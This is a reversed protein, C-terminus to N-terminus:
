WFETSTVCLRVANFTGVDAKYRRNQMLTKITFRAGNTNDWADSELRTQFRQLIMVIDWKKLAAAMLECILLELQLDGRSIIRPHMAQLLHKIGDKEMNGSLALWLPTNLGKGTMVPSAGKNLLLKVPQANVLETPVIFHCAHKDGM